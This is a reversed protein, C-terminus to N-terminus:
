LATRTSATPARAWPSSFAVPQVARTYRGGDGTTLTLDPVGDAQVMFKVNGPAIGAGINKIELDM